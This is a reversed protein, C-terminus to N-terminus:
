LADRLFELVTTGMSTTLRHGVGKEVVVQLSSGEGYARSLTDLAPQLAADPTLPDDAGVCVLQPRPAVLAAVAGMDGFGLLGPVTLYVGHLDHAGTEILPGIDSFVCLHATAAIRDDLAALWYAHTGGMSLGLSAIRAPDVGDIQSLVDLGRVLDRVMRGMLTDGQWFAAKALASETGENQRAGFGPMEVCLVTAGSRVLDIGLPEPMAPRGELLERVGIDYRNGHAHCYLIGTGTPRDPLLVAAQWTDAPEPAAFQVLSFGGRAERHVPAPVPCATPRGGLLDWLSNTRERHNSPAM